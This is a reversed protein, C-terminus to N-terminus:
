NKMLMSSLQQGQISPLVNTDRYATSIYQYATQCSPIQTKCICSMQKKKSKPIVHLIKQKFIYTKFGDFLFHNNNQLLFLKYYTNHIASQRSATTHTHPAVCADGPGAVLM